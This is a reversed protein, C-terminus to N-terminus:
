ILDWKIIGSWSMGVKGRKSLFERATVGRADRGDMTTLVVVSVSEGPAGLDIANVDVWWWFGDTEMPIMDKKRGDRGGVSLILLPPKGRGNEESTWHECVKSFQFRVCAGSYAEIQKEPPSVSHTSIGEEHADTYITPTEGHVPGIFYEEWTPVRGDSRFFHREDKPYHSLGFIDNTKTFEGAKFVPTFQKTVHSVNGAGWCSDLLKWEGGDIRVANWAHGDVKRPPPREGKKLSTYGYGKGHGTVVVCELGAREAIAKYTDAYGSCVAAGKWITEEPTRSRVSNGFFAACDYAINHHFWTFIARAKDTHSAFPGCLVHALYGVPDDRPLTKRPHQSAVSDPGSFDRCILCDNTPSVGAGPQPSTTEIQPITPRTSLPIPPPVDEDQEDDRRTVPIPPPVDAPRVNNEPERRGNTAFQPAITPIVPPPLRRPTQPKVLADESVNAQKNGSDGLYKSFKDTLRPPLTPRRPPEIQRVAPISKTSHLPQVPPPLTRSQVVKHPTHSETGVNSATATAEKAQAERERKTPPLPPLTAPDFAPPLKRTAGEVSHVSTASSVTHNLSLSSLTSVESANSGRRNDPQLSQASPRREPLAPSTKQPPNRTPLQPPVPSARDGPPLQTRIQLTEARRPLPPPTPRPTAHAKPRPPIVPTLRETPVPVDAPETPRTQSRNQPRLPASPPPPPARKPKPDLSQFNKQKNLAAIREALTTFQPEDVDAM